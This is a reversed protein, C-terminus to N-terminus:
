APTSYISVKEEFCLCVLLVFSVSVLVHHLCTPLNSYVDRTVEM